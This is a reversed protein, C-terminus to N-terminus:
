TSGAINRGGAILDQIPQQQDTPQILEVTTDGLKDQWKKATEFADISAIASEGFTGVLSQAFQMGASVENADSAKSLPSVFVAQIEKGDIKIPELEGRMAFVYAFRRLSPLVYERYVRRRAQQRREHSAKEDVWQSATPPTKGSQEPKDQYLAKKVRYILREQEFYQNQSSTPEYLPTPPESGIRRAVYTGNNVGRDPNFVGDAVFSYPPDAEKGLKKLNIYALEDLTRAAPLAMDAPGPGWAFPPAHRWRCVNMPPPVGPELLKTRCLKKEIFVVWRWRWNDDKDRERMCGQIVTVVKDTNVAGNMKMMNYVDKGFMEEVHRSQMTFEDWRGDVDNFAGEDMLLNYMLVPRVQVDQGRPALPIITGAAAGALDHFVELNQEYWNTNRILDYLKEEYPKVQEKFAQKDADKAFDTGPKLSVWPKYDPMFFDLQDSAFDCVVQQLTNDFIDDQEDEDRENRYHNTTGIRQRTPIAMEYFANLRYQFRGREQKADHIRGLYKKQNALEGKRGSTKRPKKM